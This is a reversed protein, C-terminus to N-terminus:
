TWSFLWCASRKWSHNFLVLAPVAVLMYRELLRKVSFRPERTTKCQSASIVVDFSKVPWHIFYVRANAVRKINM